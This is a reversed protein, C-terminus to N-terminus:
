KFPSITRKKMTFTANKCFNMTCTVQWFIVRKKMTFTANKCLNMSCSIQWFIVLGGFRKIQNITFNPGELTVVITFSPKNCKNSIMCKKTPNILFINCNSQFSISVLILIKCESFPISYNLSCKPSKKFSFPM